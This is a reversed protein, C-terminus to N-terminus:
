EPASVDMVMRDVLVWNRKYDIYKGGNKRIVSQVCNSIREQDTKQIHIFRFGCYLGNDVPQDWIPEALVCIPLGGEFEIVFLSHQVPSNAGALLVGIGGASLNFASVQLALEPIAIGSLLNDRLRGWERRLVNLTFNEGLRYLRGSLEVRPVVRRQFLELVGHMRFKYINGASAGVLDALVQIGSGLAESTLKYTVTGSYNDASTMGGSFPIMLALSDLNSSVVVGSLSEYIDRSRGSSMNVLFVKQKMGFYRSYNSHQSDNSM